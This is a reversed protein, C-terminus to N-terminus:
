KNLNHSVQIGDQPPNDPPPSNVAHTSPPLFLDPGPKSSSSHATAATPDFRFNPLYNMKHYRYGQDSEESADMFDFNYASTGSPGNSYLPWSVDMNETNSGLDDAAISTGIDFARNVNGHTSTNVEGFAAGITTDFVLSSPQLIALRQILYLRGRHTTPTM